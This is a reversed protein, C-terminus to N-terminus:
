MAMPGSVSVNFQKGALPKGDKTVAISVQWTGGSELDIDAIYTGDGQDKADAQARMAAMGMSPMAAMYFTISVKAGSIPKGSGDKLTMVVKNKGRAAALGAAPIPM